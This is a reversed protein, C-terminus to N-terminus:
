PGSPPSPAEPEEEPTPGGGGVREVVGGPVRRGGRVGLAGRDRRPAGRARLPAVRPGRHDEAGRDTPVALLLGLFGALTGGALLALMVVAPHLKVARQMVIPSIFHNDIQQVIAMVVAVGIAKGPGGGTTIAIVIGPVAGVWPGILPIMNFLGAIMGVILWFPLDIIFMGISAMVGVLFAVAVQGRFYGGIATGLRRAVVMSDGRARDPVLSRLVQRIHPLDVLLYFAIIPALVFIIGVHFVKLALERATDIQSAFRDQEEEKTIVGDGDTDAAEEASFQDELEQWTPIRIPWENAESRESLDNIDAELDERLEPWRDALDEYQRTALPAVLLIVIGTAAVVGLYSLGTGLARPIRRGQLRTVIPNLLFVIACALILPPWIVRVVWALLGLLVVLAAIGCVAWSVSGARRIRDAMPRSGAPAETPSPTSLPGGTPGPSPLRSSPLWASCCTRVGSPPSSSCGSPCARRAGTCRCRSRRNAPATSRHRSRCSRPPGSCGTCPTTRSPQRVHGAAPAAGRHHADPPPRLGGDVVVAIDRANVQLWERAWLWDAANSSRGIEALAWTLPEVDSPGVEVGTRRTWYDLNWAAGAAWNTIFHGTYDPDDLAKPHSVDVDHGLSELLRGTAEAAEVCDPHVAVSGGPSQTMLGIRLRGPSVGLEDLFPGDPTPATFPDGPEMGHVADLVLATDRVSRSVVLECTLGGMVDGFEPASSVRARTPKLGVLGCESAPIRISGGGDNAHGIPVLGAAVAAASGGSSGGTSRTTDWPNRTPGYAHPETTPLIGLEPTNTKGITILGAARFRAALATDDPETWAREKLFAMGEHFPDGASHASLDKLVFPVGRLPGDPLQEATAQARAGEFLPTIVANLEPNVREVREIAAEVLELPTMAGSRVLAAQATADLHSLDDSM